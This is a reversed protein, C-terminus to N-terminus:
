VSLNFNSEKRLRKMLPSIRRTADPQSLATRQQVLTEQHVEAAIEKHLKKMLRSVHKGTDTDKHQSIGERRVDTGPLLMAHETKLRELLTPKTMETQVLGQVDPETEPRAATKPKPAGKEENLFLAIFQPVAEQGEGEFAQKQRSPLHEVIGRLPSEASTRYYDIRFSVKSAALAEETLEYRPDEAKKRCDALETELQLIKEGMREEKEIANGLLHLIQEKTRKDKLQNSM